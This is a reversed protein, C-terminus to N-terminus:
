FPDVCLQRQRRDVHRVAAAIWVLAKNGTAVSTELIGGLGVPFPQFRVADTLAHGM